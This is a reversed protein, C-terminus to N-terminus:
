TLRKVDGYYIKRILGDETRVLLAWDEDINHIIGKLTEKSSLKVEVPEGIGSLYQYIESMRFENSQLKDYLDWFNKLILCLLQDVQFIRGTELFLSTANTLKAPFRKINVNLGIGCILANSHKECLVGCVKRNNLMVDNPWHISLNEFKLNRLGEIVALAAILPIANIRSEPFVLTSLYFGGSPSFWVRQQRGRGQTQGYAFVAIEKRNKVMRKLINQTSTVRRFKLLQREM